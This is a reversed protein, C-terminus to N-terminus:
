FNALPFAPSRLQPPPFAAASAATAPALWQLLPWWLLLLLLLRLRLRLRLGLRRRGGRRMATAGRLAHALQGLAYEAARGAGVAGGHLHRLLRAPAGGCAGRGEEASGKKREGRGKSCAGGVCM